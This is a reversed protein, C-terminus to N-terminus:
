TIEKNDLNHCVITEIVVVQLPYSQLPNLNYGTHVRSGGQPSVLERWPERRHDPDATDPLVISRYQCYVTAKLLRQSVDNAETTMTFFKQQQRAYLAQLLLM